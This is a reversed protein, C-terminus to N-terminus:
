RIKGRVRDMAALITAHDSKLLGDPLLHVPAAPTADDAAPDHDLNVLIARLQRLHDPIEMPNLILTIDFTGGDARHSRVTVALRRIRGGRREIFRQLGDPTKLIGARDSPNALERLSDPLWLDATESDVIIGAEWSAEEGAVVGAGAPAPSSRSPIRDPGLFIAALFAAVGIARFGASVIRRRRALAAPDKAPRVM